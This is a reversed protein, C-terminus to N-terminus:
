ITLTLTMTAAQGPQLAEVSISSLLVQNVAGNAVGLWVRTLSAPASAEGQNKIGLAVKVPDGAKASAPTVTLGAVVLDPSAAFAPAAILVLLSAFAIRFRTLSIGISQMHIGGM